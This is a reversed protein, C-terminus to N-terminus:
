KRSALALMVQEADDFALVQYGITQTTEHGKGAVLVMDHRKASQVATAIALGRDQIIDVAARESFGSMIDQVIADPTETRPNDNTVIIQDAFKEAVAAMEPRKGKDRDGGCGFICWLRGECHARLASLAKELADPTHAYDVIVKPTTADGLLQMRGRVSKLHACYGLAKSFPIDNILLVALTALVNSINFEGLLPCIFEGQGWSSAVKVLFGQPHRMVDTAVVYPQSAHMMGQASYVVVELHSRYEAIFQRGYADDQNIIAHQLGPQQFLLGKAAAYAQMSGHYDLHDRSLQTYVATTFQTGAVRAQALAHSSVEMAVHSVSDGKFQLFTQQIQIPDPTTHETKDLNPLVGCGVTGIVACRLAHQQLAAAIYHTTSTKGNTGTVGIINLAQSPQDFFLAAIAGVHLQLDQMPILLTAPSQWSEGQFGDGSEYLVVRAGRAIAQPIFNRGDVTSGPYAFFLGGPKVLRSDLALDNVTIDASAIHLESLTKSALTM